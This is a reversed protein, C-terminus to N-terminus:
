GEGEEEVGDVGEFSGGGFGGGGWGEEGYGCFPGAVAGGHVGVTGPGVERFGLVIVSEERRGCAWYCEEVEVAAGVEEHVWGCVALGAGVQGALGAAADEGDAVAERRLVGEGCGEEVGEDCVEGQEVGGGAREM